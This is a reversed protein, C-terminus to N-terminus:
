EQTYSLSHRRISTVLERFGIDFSKRFDAYKIDVLLEPLNCDDLLVPLITVGKDGLQRMLTSSIERKVWPKEISQLSLVALLFDTESLGENIRSVISDGVIIERKDYWIHLAHRDLQKVLRNVFGGDETAHCIFLKPLEHANLIREEIDAILEEADSFTQNQIRVSCSVYAIEEHISQEFDLITGNQILPELFKGAASTAEEFYQKREELEMSDSDAIIATDLRVVIGYEATREFVAQPNRHYLETDEIVRDCLAIKISCPIHAVQADRVLSFPVDYIEGDEAYIEQGNVLLTECSEDFVFEVDKCIILEQRSTRGIM